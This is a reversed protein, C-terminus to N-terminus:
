SLGNRFDKVEIAENHALEVMDATGNGGNFAVVIDPRGEYMMKRNRIPGAGRKHRKWDARFVKKDIELHDAYADALTDAGNAGGHIIMIDGDYLDVLEDMKKIFFGIEQNAMDKTKTPYKNPNFVGFDRGGCVLIRIM